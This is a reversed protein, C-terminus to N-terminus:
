PITFRKFRIKTTYMYIYINPTNNNIIKMIFVENKKNYTYSIYINNIIASDIYIYNNNINSFYYYYYYYRIIISIGEDYELLLIM